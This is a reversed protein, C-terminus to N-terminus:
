FDYQEQEAFEKRHAAVERHGDRRGPDQWLRQARPAERGVM